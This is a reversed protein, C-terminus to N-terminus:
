PSTLKLFEYRNLFGDGDTDVFDLQTLMSAIAVGGGAGLAKLAAGYPNTNPATTHCASCQTGTVTYNTDVLGTYNSTAFVSPVALLMVSAFMVMALMWQKVGKPSSSRAREKSIIDIM